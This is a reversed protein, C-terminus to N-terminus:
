VAAARYIVSFCEFIIIKQNKFYSSLYIQLMLNNCRIKTMCKCYVLNDNTIVYTPM